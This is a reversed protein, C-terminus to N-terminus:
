QAAKTYWMAKPFLLPYNHATENKREVLARGAGAGNEKVAAAADGRHRLLGKGLVVRLGAPDLVVRQLEPLTLAAHGRLREALEPRGRADRADADRM